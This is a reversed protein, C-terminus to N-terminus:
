IGQYIPMACQPLVSDKWAELSLELSEGKHRVNIARADSERKGLVILYPVKRMVHERVKYGIKENRADLEVRMGSAKLSAYVEQAYPLSADTINMVVAHVPALWLPLEGAYHEILIGMFRELSGLIARHLMVPHRKQGEADIYYAGLREPMSFDIQVTGCQWVRGLCDKLSFEIKPGYFAGEGPQLAWVIGLADLISALAQEAHDWNSESGVRREPRTSLRVIVETFGFVQYVYYADDIFAKVESAIQDLTCFIHGDDQVFQRVRMLGSLTGSPENRHCCGFEGLRVPLDRYSKLDQNYIQVHCPCNMPKVAYAQKESESVFMNQQFMDWHGSAEWLDKSVLQPTKVERYRMAYIQRMFDMLLRYVTYGHAHWFIMGPAEKQTHFLGMAKGIRRHDRREREARDLLYAELAETSEWATGYIRQLSAQSADARWYAGSSKLLKFAPIKSTDPVHPGRCLDIFSGQQYVTIDEGEPIAQILEVKFDEGISSFYEIAEARSWQHRRVEQAAQALQRMRAEIRDLDEPAFTEDCSFDYYFGDDIVPGIALRASPYLDKVAQALLHACSHRLIDRGEATGGSVWDVPAEPAWEASLDTLVGDVRVAVIADKSGHNLESLMQKYSKKMGLVRINAM